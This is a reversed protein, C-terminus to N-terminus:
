RPKRVPAPQETEEPQSGLMESQVLLERHAADCRNCPVLNVADVATSTDPLVLSVALGGAVLEDRGSQELDLPADGFRPEPM